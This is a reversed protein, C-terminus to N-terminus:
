SDRPDFFISRWWFKVMELLVLLEVSHPIKKVVHSHISRISKSAWTGSYPRLVGWGVGRLLGVVGSAM